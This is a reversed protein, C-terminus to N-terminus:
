DWHWLPMCPKGLVLGGEPWHLEAPQIARDSIHHGKYVQLGGIVHVEKAYPSGQFAEQCAGAAQM